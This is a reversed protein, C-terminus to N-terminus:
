KIFLREGKLHILSLGRKLTKTRNKGHWNPHVLKDKKKLFHPTQLKFRM